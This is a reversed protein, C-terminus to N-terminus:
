ATGIDPKSTKGPREVRQAFVDKNQPIGSWFFPLDSNWYVTAIGSGFDLQHNEGSEPKGSHYTHRYFCGNFFLPHYDSEANIEMYRIFYGHANRISKTSKFKM